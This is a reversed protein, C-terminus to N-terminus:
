MLQNNSTAARALNADPILGTTTRRKGKWDTPYGHLKYCTSRVHGKWNCYDCYLHSNTHSKQSSRSDTGLPPNSGSNSNFSSRSMSNKNNSFFAMAENVLSFNDSGVVNSKALIRQSEEALVLSYAKNVGPTPDLMMIQSRCECACGPCPMLSDFEMWLEKLRSFYSSVSLLGQSLTAIEKHLYFIRSGDVKDFREKLCDM